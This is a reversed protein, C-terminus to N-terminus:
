FGSEADYLDLYKRAEERKEDTIRSLPERRTMAELAITNYWDKVTEKLSNGDYAIQLRNLARMLLDWAVRREHAENAIATALRSKDLYEARKEASM